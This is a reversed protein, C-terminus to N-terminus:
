EGKSQEQQLKAIRGDCYFACDHEWYERAKKLEKISARRVESGILEVLDELMEERTTGANYYIEKVQEKVTM